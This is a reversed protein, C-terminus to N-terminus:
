YFYTSEPCLVSYEPTFYMCLSVTGSHEEILVFLSDAFSGEYQEISNDQSQWSGTSATFHLHFSRAPRLCGRSFCPWEDTVGHRWTVLM